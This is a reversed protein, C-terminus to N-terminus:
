SWLVYHGDDMVGIFSSVTLREGPKGGPLVEHFNQSNFITADGVTPALHVDAVDAVLSHSYGYSNPTKLLQCEPTWLRDHVVCEGGDDPARVYLNWALQSVVRGIAWGPADLPAWDVHLLASNIQRLLGAFYASQIGQEYAVHVPGPLLAGLLSRMRELPNITVSFAAYQKAYANPVSGFYRRRDFGHEFQTIGIRGIPPEVNEYKDFGVSEISAALAACEEKTAFNRVRVAPIENRILLELTDKDLAAVDVSKWSTKSDSSQAWRVM